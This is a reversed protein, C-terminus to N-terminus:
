QWQYDGFTPGTGNRDLVTPLSNPNDIFARQPGVTGNNGDMEKIAIWELDYRQAKANLTDVDEAIHNPDDESRDLKRHQAILMKADKCALDLHWPVKPIDWNPELIDDGGNFRCGTNKSPTM